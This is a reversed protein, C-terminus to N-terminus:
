SLIGEIWTLQLSADFDAVQDGPNLFEDRLGKGFHYCNPVEPTSSLCARKANREETELKLAGWGRM